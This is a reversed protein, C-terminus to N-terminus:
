NAGCDSEDSTSTTVDVFIGGAEECMTKASARSLETSPGGGLPYSYSLQCNLICGGNARLRGQQDRLDCPGLHWGSSMGSRACAETDDFSTEYCLTAMHTLCHGITPESVCAADAEDGADLDADPSSDPPSSSDVAGSDAVSSDAGADRDTPVDTVIVIAPPEPTWPPTPEDLRPDVLDGLSGCALLVSSFLAIRLTM